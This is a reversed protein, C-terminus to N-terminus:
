LSLNTRLAELYKEFAARGTRTLRCTTRPKKGAYGKTVRIYGAAELKSLHTSLNGDTTGILDKLYNFDAVEAGALASMIALRIRSHILPDLDALSM